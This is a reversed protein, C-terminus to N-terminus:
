RPAPVYRGDTPIGGETGVVWMSGKALRDDDLEVGSVHLQSLAAGLVDGHSCIAIPAAAQEILEVVLDPGAGEALREDIGIEIGLAAAVPTVTEVCRVFPSSVIRTIGSGSLSTAIAEAQAVGRESLPRLDDDVTGRKGAHAHRILYCLTM